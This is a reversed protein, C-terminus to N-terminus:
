LTQLHHLNPNPLEQSDDAFLAIQTKTKPSQYAISIHINRFSDLASGQPVGARIHKVSSNKDDLKVPM